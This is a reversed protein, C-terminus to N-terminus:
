SSGLAIRTYRSAIREAHFGLAAGGVTVDIATDRPEM